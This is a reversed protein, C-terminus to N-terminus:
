TLQPLFNARTPTASQVPQIHDSYQLAPELDLDLENDEPFFSPDRHGHVGGGKGNNMAQQEKVYRDIIMKTRWVRIAMVALATLGAALIVAVFTAIVHLTGGAVNETVAIFMSNPNKAKFEDMYLAFDNSGHGDGCNLEWLCTNMDFFRGTRSPCWNLCFDCIKPKPHWSDDDPMADCVYQLASEAHGGLKAIQVMNSFQVAEEGNVLLAPVTTPVHETSIEKELISNKADTEVELEGMCQDIEDKNFDVTNMVQEVCTDSYEQDCGTGRLADHYQFYRYMNTHDKSSGYKEWICSCRASEKVFISGPLGGQHRSHTAGPKYAAYDCYRFKDVCHHECGRALRGELDMESGDPNRCGPEDEGRLVVMHPHFDVADDFLRMVTAKLHHMFELDADASPATYFDLKVKTGSYASAAPFHVFEDTKMKTKHSNRATATAVVSALLISSFFKM